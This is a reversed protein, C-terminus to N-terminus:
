LWHACSQGAAAVCGSPAYFIPLLVLGCFGCVAFYRHALVVLITLGDVNAVDSQSHTVLVSKKLGFREMARSAGAFESTGVSTRHRVGLSEQPM